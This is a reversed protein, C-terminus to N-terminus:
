FNFLLNYGKFCENIYLAYNYFVYNTFYIYTIFKVCFLTGKDKILIEDMISHTRNTM